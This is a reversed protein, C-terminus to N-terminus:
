EGKKRGFLERWFDFAALCIAFVTVLVLDIDPVFYPITAVMAAFTGLALLAIFKDIM